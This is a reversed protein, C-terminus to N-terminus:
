RIALPEQALKLAPSPVVDLVVIDRPQAVDMAQVVIAKSRRAHPHSHRIAIMPAIPQEICRYVVSVIKKSPRARGGDRSVSHMRGHPIKHPMWAAYPGAVTPACHGTSLAPTTKLVAVSWRDPATDNGSAPGHPPMSAAVSDGRVSERRTGRATLAGRGRRVCCKGSNVLIHRISVDEAGCHDSLASANKAPSCTWPKAAACAIRAAHQDQGLLLSSPRRVSNTRLRVFSPLPSSCRGALFSRLM